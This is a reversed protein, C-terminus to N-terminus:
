FYGLNPHRIARTASSPPLHALFVVAATPSVIPTTGVTHFTRSVQRNKSSPKLNSPPRRLKMNQRTTILTLNLQNLVINADYSSIWIKGLRTNASKIKRHMFFNLIILGGVHMIAMIETKIRCRISVFAIKMQKPGNGLTWRFNKVSGKASEYAKQLIPLMSSSIVKLRGLSRTRSLRPCHLRM